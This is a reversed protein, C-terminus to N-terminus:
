EDTPGKETPDCTPHSTYGNEPLWPDMPLSCVRCKALRGRSSRAKDRRTKRRRFEDAHPCSAFHTQYAPRGVVPLASPSVVRLVLHRGQPIKIVNGGPRPLPDLSMTKGGETQGWVIPAGCAKCHSGGHRRAAAEHAEEVKPVVRRWQELRVPREGLGAAVRVQDRVDDSGRLEVPTVGLTLAATVLDDVPSM